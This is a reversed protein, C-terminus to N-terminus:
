QDSDFYIQGRASGIIFADSFFGPYIQNELSRSSGTFYSIRAIRRSAMREFAPWLEQGFIAVGAEIVSEL